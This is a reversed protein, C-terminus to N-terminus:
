TLVLVGFPEVKVKGYVRKEAVLDMYERALSVKCSKGSFNMLFIFRKDEKERIAVEVENPYKIDKLGLDELIERMLKDYFGQTLGCGVYYAKGRGFSNVTVAAYPTYWGSNYRAMIKAGESTILDAFTDAQYTNEDEDKVEVNRGRLNDWAYISMGFLDRLKGPLVAKVMNSNEDKIGFRFGAIFTGGEEVYKKINRVTEDSVIYMLPAIVARYNTFDDTPRVIDVNIGLRKIARYFRLIEGPYDYMPTERYISFTGQYAYNAWINDYDYIIAVPSIVRSGEVQPVIRHVESAIRMAEKYSISKGTGEHQLIGSHFQEIGFTCARWRFYVVTEAGHAYSHYTWLRMEGPSLTPTIDQRTLYSCQQEMIWFNKKKLARMVDHSLAVHFRNEIKQPYNDWSIFDYNKALKYYDLGPFLGMFNHTVFKDPTISKLLSIQMDSYIVNMDSFFRRFDLDFAPNHYLVIPLPIQEWSTYDHSWFANGWSRNLNDLTKYKLKLWYQFEARCGDCYCKPGGFENDVQWGIVQSNDKYHEAMKRIIRESYNHYTKNTICYHRRAGFSMRQGGRLVPLIDPYKEILWAPPAATPTCLVVKIGRKDLVDMVEDLWDFDYRGDEPELKSWAFEALRVVDIGAKEMLEADVPWRERDWHEPYYDAGVPVALM